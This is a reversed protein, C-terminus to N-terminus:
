EDRLIKYTELLLESAAELEATIHELNAHENAPFAYKGEIAAFQFLGKFGLHAILLDDLNKPTNLLYFNIDGNLIQKDLAEFWVKVRGIRSGCAFLESYRSNDLGATTNLWLARLATAATGFIRPTSLVIKGNYNARINQLENIAHNFILVNNNYDM